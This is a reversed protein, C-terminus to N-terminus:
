VGHHSTVLAQQVRSYKIWLSNVAKISSYPENSYESSGVTTGTRLWTFASWMRRESKEFIVKLIIRGDIGPDELHNRRM